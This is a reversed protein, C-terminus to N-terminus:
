LGMKARKAKEVQHDKYELLVKHDLPGKNELHLMKVQIQFSITKGKEEVTVRCKRFSM